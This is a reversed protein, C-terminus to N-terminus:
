IETNEVGKERSRSVGRAEVEGGQETFGRTNEVGKERSRSIEHKLRVERSRSDGRAGVEGGQETFVGV